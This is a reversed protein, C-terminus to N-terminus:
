ERPTTGPQVVIIPDRTMNYISSAVVFLTCSAFLVIAFKVWFRAKPSGMVMINDQSVPMIDLHNFFDPRSPKEKGLLEAILCDREHIQKDKHMLAHQVTILRMKARGFGESIYRLDLDIDDYITFRGMPDRVGPYTGTMPYDGTPYKDSVNTDIEVEPVMHVDKEFEFLPPMEKTKEEPEIVAAPAMKTIDYGLNVAEVPTPPINQELDELLAETSDPVELLHAPASM